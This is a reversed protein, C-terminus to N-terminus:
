IFYVFMLDYIRIPISDLDYKYFKQFNESHKSLNHIFKYSDM